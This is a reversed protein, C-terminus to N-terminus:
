AAQCQGPDSVSTQICIARRGHAEVLRAPEALRDVRRVGLAVDAGAWLRRWRSACGSSAGTVIAVQGDLRFM